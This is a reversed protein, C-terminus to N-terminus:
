TMRQTAHGRIEHFNVLVSFIPGLENASLASGTGVPARTRRHTGSQPYGAKSNPQVLNLRNQHTESHLM